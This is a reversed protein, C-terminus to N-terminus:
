QDRGAVGRYMPRVGDGTTPLRPADQVGRCCSGDGSGGPPARCRSPPLARRRVCADPTEYSGGPRQVRARVEPAASRLYDARAGGELSM